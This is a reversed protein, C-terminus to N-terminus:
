IFNINLIKKAQIYFGAVGNDQVSDVHMKYRELSKKCSHNMAHKQNMRMIMCNNCYYGGSANRRIGEPFESLDTMKNTM